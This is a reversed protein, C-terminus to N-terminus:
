GLRPVVQDMVREANAGITLAPNSLGSSGPLLAGDVVFLDLTGYVEGAFSCATGM